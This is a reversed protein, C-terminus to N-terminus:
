FNNEQSFFTQPSLSNYQFTQNLTKTKNTLLLIENAKGSQVLSVQFTCSSYPYGALQNHISRRSLSIM